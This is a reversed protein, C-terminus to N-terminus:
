SPSFIGTLQSLQDATPEAGILSRFDGPGFLYYAFTEAFDGAPSGFDTCGDCTPYWDRVDYNLGRVALYQRAEAITTHSFDLAHGMEHAITRALQLSTQGDRIYITITRMTSNTEGLVGARGGTFIVRYGLEPWPYSILALAAEGREQITAAAAVVRPAATTPPAVVRTTPPATVVTTPPLATTTTVPELSGEVDRVATTSTGRIAPPDALKTSPSNFFQVGILTPLVTM